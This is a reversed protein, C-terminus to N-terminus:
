GRGQLPSASALGEGPAVQQAVHAMPRRPQRSVVKHGSSSQKERFDECIARLDYDFRREHEDRIRRVEEVIPDLWM